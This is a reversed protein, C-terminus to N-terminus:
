SGYLEVRDDPQPRPKRRQKKARMGEVVKQRARLKEDAHAVAQDVTMTGNGVYRRLWEFERDAVGGWVGAAEETFGHRLCDVRVPCRGCYNMWGRAAYEIQHVPFFLSTMRRLQVETADPDPRCAADVYWSIDTM